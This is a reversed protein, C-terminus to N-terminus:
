RRARELLQKVRAQRNDANPGFFWCRGLTDALLDTKSRIREELRAFYGEFDRDLLHELLVSAVADRMDDDPSVGYKLVIEWVKEPSSSISEGIVIIAQWRVDNDSDEILPRALELFDAAPGGKAIQDRMLRLSRLREAAMPSSLM